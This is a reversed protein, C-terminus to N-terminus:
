VRLDVGMALLALLAIGLAIRYYGFMKFGYKTLFNIFFRIAIMAVIFAVVNGILLLRLDDGTIVDFSNRIKVLDFMLVDSLELKLLDKILKYSSAALMTPVALFFSFEAAAKRNIGQTLGGIISAASRSVGPIMAICQFFGIVLANKYTIKNEQAHAFWKDVFLLVVGGAVLMLATILVSGLMADIVDNLLFGIVAAPIFALLLKKYFEFSNIFRKWYLVVVSLIAGFQINVAFIKTIPLENIGMLASAIIMHGTSSVPLFETLGEVIALIIAQWESM